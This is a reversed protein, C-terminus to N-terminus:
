SKILGVKSSHLDSEVCLINRQLVGTLWGNGKSKAQMTLITVVLSSKTCSYAMSKSRTGIVYERVVDKYASCARVTFLIFWLIYYLTPRIQRPIIVGM